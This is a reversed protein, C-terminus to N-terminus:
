RARNGPTPTLALRIRSGEEIVFPGDAMTGLRLKPGRPGGLGALPRGTRTEIDRAITLRERHDEHSGHSFNFRFVDTGADFLAQIVERSASAPGLTAVIKAHRHRRM